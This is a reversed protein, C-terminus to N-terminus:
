KGGGEKLMVWSPIGLITPTGTTFFGFRQYLRVNAYKDTELYFPFQENQHCVFDLLQSGIGRGQWATAVALPGLHWHPEKPDIAAWCGLWRAMRAWGFPSNSRALHPVLRLADLFSPKCRNPPLVGFVGVLQGEVWAGYFEGKRYVYDLLAPFFRLLRQHRQKEKAGFVAIHLPNHLMASACIKVALPLDSKNLPQIIQAAQISSRM